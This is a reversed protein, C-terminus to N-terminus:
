GHKTAVGEIAVALLGRGLIDIVYPSKLEAAIHGRFGPIEIGQM